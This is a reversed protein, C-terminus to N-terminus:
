KSYSKALHTCVLMAMHATVSKAQNTIVLMAKQGLNTVVLM